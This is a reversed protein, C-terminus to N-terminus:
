EEVGEVTGGIAAVRPWRRRVEAITWVLLGGQASWFVLPGLVLMRERPMVMTMAIRACLELLLTIAWVKAILRLFRRLLPTSDWMAGFDRSAGADNGAVLQRAVYFTAPRDPLLSVLLALGIAGTIVSGRLLDLGTDGAFASAALAAGLGILNLTSLPALRRHGVVSAIDVVAPLLAAILLARVETLQARVVAYLVYPAAGGVLVITRIESTLRRSRGRVRASPATGSPQPTGPQMKAGFADGELWM